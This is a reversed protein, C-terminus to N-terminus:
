KIKNKSEVTIESGEALMVSDPTESNLFKFHEGYTTSFDIDIEYKHVVYHDWKPHTVEYENSRKENVAAYGWYH